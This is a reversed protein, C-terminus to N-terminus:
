SNLIDLAEQPWYTSSDWDTKDAMIFCDIIEGDIELEPTAWTSALFTYTDEQLIPQGDEYIKGGPFEWDGSLSANAVSPKRDKIIQAAKKWDFVMQIKDQNAKGMAFASMTNM